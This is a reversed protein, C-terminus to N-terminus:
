QSLFENEWEASRQKAEAIKQKALDTNNPPMGPASHMRSLTQTLPPGFHLGITHYYTSVTLAYRRSIAVQTLFELTICRRNLWHVGALGNVHHLKWVHIPQGFKIAMIALYPLPQTDRHEVMVPQWAGFGDRIYPAIRSPKSQFTEPRFGHEQPYVGLLFLMPRLWQSKFFTDPALMLSKYPSYAFLVWHVWHADNCIHIGPAWQQKKPANVKLRIGRFFLAMRLTWKIGQVMWQHWGFWRYSLRGVVVFFVGLIFLPLQQIIMVQALALRIIQLCTIIGKYVILQIVMFDFWDL